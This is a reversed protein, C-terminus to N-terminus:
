RRKTGPSLKPLHKDVFDSVKDALEPFYCNALFAVAARKKQDPSLRFIELPTLELCRTCIAYVAFPPTKEDITNCIYCQPGAWKPRDSTKTKKM